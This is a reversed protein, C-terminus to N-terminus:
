EGSPLPKPTSPPSLLKGAQENFKQGQLYITEDDIRADLEIKWGFWSGSQNREPVTSLLYTHSFSAPVFKTEGTDIIISNMKTNWSRSKKLQTSTMKVIAPIFTDQDTEYLVLHVATTEIINGNPLVDKNKDNRTTETLISDNKHIKVIGGGETKPKWEIFQLEYHCPIVKLKRDNKCVVKQAATDFIDGTEIGDIAKSAHDPHAKDIEASNTQCISLYPISMDKASVNEM